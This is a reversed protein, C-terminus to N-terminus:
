PLPLPKSYLANMPIRRPKDVPSEDEDEAGPPPNRRAHLCGLGRDGMPRQEKYDDLDKFAYINPHGHFGPNRVVVGRAGGISFTYCGTNNELLIANLDAQKLGERAYTIIDGAEMKEGLQIRYWYSM